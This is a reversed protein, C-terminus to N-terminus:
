RHRGETVESNGLQQAPGGNAAASQNSAEPAELSVDSGSMRRDWFSDLREVTDRVQDATTSEDTTSLANIAIKMYDSAEHMEGAREAAIALRGYTLGVDFRAIRGSDQIEDAFRLLAAKAVVYSGYRYSVYAEHGVFSARAQGAIEAMPRATRQFIIVSGTIAGAVFVGILVTTRVATKANM